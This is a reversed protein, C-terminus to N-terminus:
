FLVLRNYCAQRYQFSFFVTLHNTFLVARKDNLVKTAGIFISGQNSFSLEIDQPYDSRSYHQWLAVGCDTLYRWHIKSDAIPSSDPNSIPWAETADFCEDDEDAPIVRNVKKITIGHGLRLGFEDSYTIRYLSEDSLTLYVAKSVSHFHEFLQVDGYYRAQRIHMGRLEACCKELAFEQMM